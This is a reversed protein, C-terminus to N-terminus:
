NFEALKIVYYCETVVSLSIGKTQADNRKVVTTEIHFINNWLQYNNVRYMPGHLSAKFAIM